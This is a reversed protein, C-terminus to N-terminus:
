MIQFTNCSHFVLNKYRVKYFMQRTVIANDRGGELKGEFARYSSQNDFCM